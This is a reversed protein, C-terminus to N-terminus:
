VHDNSLDGSRALVAREVARDVVLVAEVLVRVEDGLHIYGVFVRKDRDVQDTAVVSVLNFQRDALPPALRGDGVHRRVLRPRQTIRQIHGDRNEVTPLGDKIASAESAMADSAKKM